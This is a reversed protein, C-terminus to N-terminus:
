HEAHVALQVPGATPRALEAVSRAPKATELATVRGLRIDDLPRELSHLLPTPFVGLVVCALALPVLVLVERGTIDGGPVFKPHVTAHTDHGEALVPYALPGFLLRAAFHLMYLAGLIIGTAHVIGDAILEARDYNWGVAGAAAHVSTSALQKLKFITM